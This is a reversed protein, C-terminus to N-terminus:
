CITFLFESQLNTSAIRRPFLISGGGGSLIYSKSELRPGFGITNIDDNIVANRDKMINSRVSEFKLMRGTAGPRLVCRLAHVIAFGHVSPHQVESRRPCTITIMYKGRSDAMGPSLKGICQGSGWNDSDKVRMRWSSRVAKEQSQIACLLFAGIPLPTRPDQLFCHAVRSLRYLRLTPCQLTAPQISNLVTAFLLM